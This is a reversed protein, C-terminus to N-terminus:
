KKRSGSKKKSGALSVDSWDPEPDYPLGACDFAAHLFQNYCWDSGFRNRYQGTVVLEDRARTFAVYALRNTEEYDNRSMKQASQFHTMSVVVLRYERGKSSHATVLNVGDYSEHRTYEVGGGDYTTFDRCYDMIEDIDRFEFKDALSAMVEDDMAIDKVFAMFKEKRITPEPTGMVEKARMAATRVQAQVTAEPEDMLGGGMLANAAVLADMSEESPSLCLRAFALVAKVRSNDALREPAGLFTPIGARTCIDAILPLERKTRTLVAMQSWPIGRAHRDQLIRVISDKEQEAKQFGKVLVPVGDGRMAELHKPVQKEGNRAIYREAFELIPRTSRWNEPYVITKAEHGIAQDFNVIYEPSTNRFGYIAQYDDGVVTLSRFAPCAALDKLLQIQDESSDQFEDVLIDQLGLDPLIGPDQRCAKQALLPMDDFDILARKRMDEEYLGALDTLKALAVVPIEEPSAVAYIDAMDITGDHAARSKKCAAFVDRAIELAGHAGYTTGSTDVYHLFAPGRWEQIPHKKLIGDIEHYQDVPDLVTPIRDFGIEGAHNKVIGYFFGHFTRIMLGPVEQGEMAEVRERLEAAAANSFTVALVAEPATGHQLLYDIKGVMSKTKGTGAGALVRYFGAGATIMDEQADTYRVTSLRQMNQNMHEEKNARFHRDAYRIPKQM